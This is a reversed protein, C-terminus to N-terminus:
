QNASAGAALQVSAWVYIPKPREPLETYPKNFEPDYQPDGSGDLAGGARGSGYKMPDYTYADPMKFDPSELAMGIREGAATGISYLYRSKKALPIKAEFVFVDELRNLKAEIGQAEDIPMRGMRGEAGLIDLDTMLYSLEEFRDAMQKETPREEEEGRQRREVRERAGKMLEEEIVPYRIGFKKKEKDEPDFWINLGRMLHFQASRATTAMMIYVFDEDNMVGIVVRADEFTRVHGAWEDDIGDIVIPQARWHSELVLPGGGCSGIFTMGFLVVALLGAPRLLADPHFNRGM